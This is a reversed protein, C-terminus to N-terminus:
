LINNLFTLQALQCSEAEYFGGDNSVRIIFQNILYQPYSIVSIVNSSAVSFGVSNTATVVCAVNTSADAGVLTYTTSTAGLIPLGNRTWQYTYNIVPVGYWTGPSTLTLTSYEVGLGSIVPPSQNYPHLAGRIDLGVSNGIAIGIM